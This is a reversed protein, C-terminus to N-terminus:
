GLKDKIFKLAMKNTIGNIDDMSEITNTVTSCGNIVDIM